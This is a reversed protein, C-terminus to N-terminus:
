KGGAAKLDALCDEDFVPLVDEGVLDNLKINDEAKFYMLCEPNSCHNEHDESLHNTVMSTGNNVLGFMHGFEHKLVFTELTSRAPMDAKVYFDISKAFVVMSTAGYAIGMLRDNEPNGAYETDLFVIWVALTNASTAGERQLEELRRVGSLKMTASDTPPLKHLTVTVGDPKNLRDKLFQTINDVTLTAPPNTESYAIEVSLKTYTSSTLLDLPKYPDVTEVITEPTVKEEKCGVTLLALITFSKLWNRNM